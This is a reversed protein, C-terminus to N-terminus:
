RNQYNIPMMVMVQAMKARSEVKEIVEKKLDAIQKESYTKTQAVLWFPSIALLLMLLNKM